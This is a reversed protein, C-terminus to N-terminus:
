RHPNPCVFDPSDLYIKLEKMSKDIVGKTCRTGPMPFVFIRTNSFFPCLEENFGYNTTVRLNLIKLMNDLVGKYVFLLVKPKHIKIANTIRVLGSKYEDITPENGYFRPLKVIDMIGISHDLLVDDEFMNNPVNLIAYTKLKNWFTKGQRGQFYHGMQVSKPAPVKGIILMKLHQNDPPLIDELTEFTMDKGTITVKHSKM